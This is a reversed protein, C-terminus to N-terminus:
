LGKRKNEVETKKTAESTVADNVLTEKSGTFTVGASKMLTLSPKLTSLYSDPESEIAAYEDIKAELTTKAESRISSAIASQNKVVDQIYGVGRGDIYVWGDISVTITPAAFAIVPFTLLILLFKKM